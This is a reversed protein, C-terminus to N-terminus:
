RGGGDDDDAYEEVREASEDAWGGAARIDAELAAVGGTITGDSGADRALRAADRLGRKTATMEVALRASALGFRALVAAFVIPGDLAIRAVSRPGYRRGPGMPWGGTAVAHQRVLAGIREIIARAEAYERRARAPDNRIAEAIRAELVNAGDRKSLAAGWRELKAPSDVFAPCYRCWTGEFVPPTRGIRVLEEADRVRGLDERLEDCFNDLDFDDVAVVDSRPARDSLRWIGVRMERRRGHVLSAALLGARLQRNTAVPEPTDDHASKWDHIELAHDSVLVVDSTGHMAGDAPYARPGPLALRSATRAAVDLSWAVEAEYPPGVPAGDLCLDALAGRHAPPAAALASTLDGGAGLAALFAHQATGADAADDARLSHPLACSAPCHHARDLASFTPTTM